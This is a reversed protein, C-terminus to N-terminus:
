RLDDGPKDHDEHHQERQPHDIKAIRSSLTRARSAVRCRGVSFAVLNHDPTNAAPYIQRAGFRLAHAATERAGRALAGTMASRICGRGATGGNSGGGSGESMLSEVRRMRQITPSYRATHPAISSPTASKKSRRESATPAGLANM